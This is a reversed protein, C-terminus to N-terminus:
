QWHLFLGNHFLLCSFVSLEEINSIFIANIPFILLMCQLGKTAVAINLLQIVDDLNRSLTQTMPLLFPDDFHIDMGLISVNHRVTACAYTNFESIESIFCQKHPAKNSLLSIYDRITSCRVLVTDTTDKCIKYRAITPEIATVEMRTHVSNAIAQAITATVSNFSVWHQIYSALFSQVTDAHTVSMPTSSSKQAAIFKLTCIYKPSEPRSAVFLAPLTPQDIANLPTAVIISKPTGKTIEAWENALHSQSISQM